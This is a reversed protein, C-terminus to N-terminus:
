HTKNFSGAKRFQKRTENMFDDYNHNIKFQPEQNFNLIEVTKKILKEEELKQKKRQHDAIIVLISNAIIAGMIWYYSKGEM